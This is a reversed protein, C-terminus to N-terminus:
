EKSIKKLMVFFTLTSGRGRWVTVWTSGRRVSATGWVRSKGDRTGSIMTRLMRKRMM